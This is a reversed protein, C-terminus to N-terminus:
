LVWHQPWCLKGVAWAPLRDPFHRGVFHCIGINRWDFRPYIGLIRGMHRLEFIGSMALGMPTAGSFGDIVKDADNGLHIWVNFRRENPYPLCFVPFGKGGLAPNWINMGTGGFAEKALIVSFAVALAVMWLPTNIPLILPILLGSVLYGENIEHGKIQAFAFEIGFGCCVFGRNGAVCATGRVYIGTWFDTNALEGIAKFHHYGINYMGFLMTPLLAIVVFIMTRKLDIYDRINSGKKTTADSVYLFSEFGEFVSNFPHLKGGKHFKPRQKDFFDKLGQGKM